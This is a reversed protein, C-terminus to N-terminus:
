ELITPIQISVSVRSGNSNQIILLNPNLYDPHLGNLVYMIVTVMQFGSKDPEWATWYHGLPLHSQNESVM